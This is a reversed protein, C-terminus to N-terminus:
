IESVDWAGDSVVHAHAIEPPSELLIRQMRGLKHQTYQELGPICVQAWPLPVSLMAALLRSALEPPIATQVPIFSPPPEIPLTPSTMPFPSHFHSQSASISHTAFSLTTRQPQKLNQNQKYSNSFFM